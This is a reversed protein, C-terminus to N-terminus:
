WDECFYISARLFFALCAPNLVHKYPCTICLLSSRKALSINKNKIVLAKVVTQANILPVFVAADVWLKLDHHILGYVHM